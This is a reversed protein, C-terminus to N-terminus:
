DQELVRYQLAIRQIGFVNGSLISNDIGVLVSRCNLNTSKHLITKQPQIKYFADETDMTLESVTLRDDLGLIHTVAKQEDRLRGDTYLNVNFKGGTKGYATVQYKNINVQSFPFEIAKTLMRPILQHSGFDEYNSDDFELIFGDSTGIYLADEFTSYATPTFVNRIDVGSSDPDGSNDRIYVTSYGLTDNDGYDWEHNNLSGVTGETLKKNDMLIFDPQATFSPDGGGALEVYYENTGSGSATWKYADSTLIDRYFEYESWSYLEDGQSISPDIESCVLTRWYNPMSVFIQRYRPFFGIIAASSWYDTFRDIIRTSRPKVVIDGYEQIGILQKLGEKSALFISTDSNVLSNYSCSHHEFDQSVVYSSPSDGYLRAMYRADETGFIWLNNFLAALGGVEYSGGDGDVAGIYGGGDSTSWDLHTLNSYYIHNTNSPDGSVFLRNKHIAGFKGKPPESPGIAMLPNKTVEANYSGTYYYAVGGSLVAECHVNIYNSADGNSYEVNVYYAVNPSFQVSVDTAAITVSYMTATVPIEVATPTIDTSSMLADDSVRRVVLKIAQNDTGTYGNGIRALKVKAQTPPITYGATWSTTTFKFGARTNTGDGVPLTADDVGSSNDWEYGSSGTGSDYAMKIDTINNLYKIYSGDLIIAVSNYQIITATNNELTGILTPTGSNDYYLKSNTDIMLLYITGGINCEKVYVIKANSTTAVSTTKKVPLRPELIGNKIRFNVCEHLEGDKLMAPRTVTNLGHSWNEFSAAGRRARRRKFRLLDKKSV